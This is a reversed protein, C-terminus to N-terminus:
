PGGCRPTPGGKYCDHDVNLDVVGGSVLLHLFADGKRFNRWQGERGDLVQWEPRLKRRYYATVASPRADRPLKDTRYTSYGAIAESQETLAYGSSTTKGPRAGPFPPITRLLERNQGVYADRDLDSPSEDCGVVAALAVGLVVLSRRM